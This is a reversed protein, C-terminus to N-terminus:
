GTGEAEADQWVQKRWPPPIAFHPARQGGAAFPELPVLALDRSPTLRSYDPLFAQISGAHSGGSVFLAGNEKGWGNANRL